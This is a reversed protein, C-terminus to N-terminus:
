EAESLLQVLGHERQLKGPFNVKSIQDAFHDYYQSIM